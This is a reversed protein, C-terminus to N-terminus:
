INAITLEGGFEMPAVAEFLHQIAMQQGDLPHGLALQDCRDQQQTGVTLPKVVCGPRVQGLRVSSGDVTRLDTWRRARAAGRRKKPPGDVDAVDCAIRQPRIITVERKRVTKM